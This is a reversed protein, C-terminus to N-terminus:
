RAVASPPVLQGWRRMRHTYVVYHVAYYTPYALLLGLVVSGLWLPAAIQVLRTWYFVVASWWGAPPHALQAWWHDGMPAWRLMIRGVMYCTYYMPIFTAPNSIWVVPLGVVKNARLLWALFVVIIMQFGITPTLTVFTGIAVGLAIRHPPDDAHLVNHYIFRRSNRLSLRYRVRVHRRFM